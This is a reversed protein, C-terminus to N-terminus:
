PKQFNYFPDELIKRCGGAKEILMAADDTWDDNSLIKQSQGETIGYGTIEKMSWAKAERRTMYGESQLCYETASVGIVKWYTTPEEDIALGAASQAIGIAAIAVIVKKM